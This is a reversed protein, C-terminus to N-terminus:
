GKVLKIILEYDAAMSAVRDQDVNRALPIVFQYKKDEKQLREATRLMEPLLSEIEQLRSGPLLGITTKEPDLERESYIEEPTKEIKTADLLPHGVFVVEAGAERLAEAEMPFVSAITATYRALWKARWSGWMWASPSFYTGAPIHR